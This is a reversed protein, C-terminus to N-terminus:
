DQLILERGTKEAELKAARYKLTDRADDGKLIIAGNAGSGGGGEAGSGSAGSGAFAAAFLKDEKMEGVLSEISFPKGDEGPIRPDGDPTLVQTRFKGDEEILKVKKMIHPLLLTASGKHSELAARGKNEIMETTLAGTLLAIRDALTKQEGAHREKLQTELAKFDGAAKARNTEADAEKKLLEAYKEADVGEKAAVAAQSKQLKTLIEDRNKKLGSAYAEETGEIDLIFGKGKKKYLSQFAEDIGDLSDVIAQLTM